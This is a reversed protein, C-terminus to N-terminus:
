TSLLVGTFTGGLEQDRIGNLLLEDAEFIFLTASSREALGTLSSLQM